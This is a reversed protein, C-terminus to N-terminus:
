SYHKLWQQLQRPNQFILLKEPQVHAFWNYLNKRLDKKFLIRKFVWHIIHWGFKEQCTEPMEPRRKRHYLLNRKLVHWALRWRSYDLVIVTTARQLRADPLDVYGLYGELIWESKELINTAYQIIETNEHPKDWGNEWIFYDMNYVPLSNHGSLINALTSKGSGAVGIIAIRSGLSSM